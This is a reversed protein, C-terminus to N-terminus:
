VFCRLIQVGKHVSPHFHDVTSLCSFSIRLIRHSHDPPAHSHVVLDRGVVLLTDLAVPQGGPAPEFPQAGTLQQRPEQWGGRGDHEVDAARLARIGERERPGAVLHVKEIEQGRM